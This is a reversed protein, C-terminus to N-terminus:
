PAERMDVPSYGDNEKQGRKRRLVLIFLFVVGLNVFSLGSLIFSGTRSCGDGSGKSLFKILILDVLVLGFYAALAVMGGVRFVYTRDTSEPLAAAWELIVFLVLLAASLPVVTVNQEIPICDGQTRMFILFASFLGIFCSQGMVAQAEWTVTARTGRFRGYCSNPGEEDEM